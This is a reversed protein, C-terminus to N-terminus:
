YVAVIGWSVRGFDNTDGRARWISTSPTSVAGWHARRAAQLAHPPNQAAHLNTSGAWKSNLEHVPPEAWIPGDSNPVTM